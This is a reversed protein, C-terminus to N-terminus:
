GVPEKCPSRHNVSRHRGAFQALVTQCPPPSVHTERLFPTPKVACRMGVGALFSLFSVLLPPLALVLSTPAEDETEIAMAQLRLATASVNYFLQTYAAEHSNCGCASCHVVERVRLGFVSDVFASGGEVGDLSEYM